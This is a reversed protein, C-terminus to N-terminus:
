EDRLSQTRRWIFTARRYHDPAICAWDASHVTGNPDSVTHVQTEGTGYTFREPEEAYSAVIIVICRLYLEYDEVTWLIADEYLWEYLTRQLSWERSPSQEALWEEFRGALEEALM